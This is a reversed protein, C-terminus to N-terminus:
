LLYYMVQNCFTKVLNQFSMSKLQQLLNIRNILKLIVKFFDLFYELMETKESEKELEKAGKLVINKLKKKIEM